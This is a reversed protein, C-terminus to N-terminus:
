PEEAARGGLFLEVLGGPHGRGLTAVELAQGSHRGAEILRRAGVRGRDEPVQHSGVSPVPHSLDLLLDSVLAETGSHTAQGLERAHHQRSPETEITRGGCRQLGRGICEADANAPYAPGLGLAKGGELPIM